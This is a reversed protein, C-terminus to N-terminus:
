AEDQVLEESMTVIDALWDRALNRAHKADRIGNQYNRTEYMQLTDDHLNLQNLGHWTIVVVEGYDDEGVLVMLAGDLSEYDM